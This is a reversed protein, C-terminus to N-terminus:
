RPAPGVHSRDCAAALRPDRMKLAQQLEAIAADRNGIDALIEAYQYSGGKGNVKRMDNVIAAARATRRKTPFSFTQWRRGRVEILKPAPTGRALL